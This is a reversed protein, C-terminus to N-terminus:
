ENSISDMNSFINYWHMCLKHYDYEKTYSQRMNEVIYHFNNYNGLVKELQEVLDSCDYEFPIYTKNEQWVNSGFDFQSMNEKCIITGVQMAAGDGQRIEGMGFPSICIKSNYLTQMYQDFPLSGTVINYKDSLKNLENFIDKRHSIYM